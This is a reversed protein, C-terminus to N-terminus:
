VPQFIYSHALLYDKMDLMGLHYLIETMIENGTCTACQNKLITRGPIKAMFDWLGYYEEVNDPQNSFFPKHHLVFSILWSQIKSDLNSRRMGSQEPYGKLDKGCVAPYDTITPLCIDMKTKDIDSIFLLQIASSEQRKRGTKGLLTFVGRDKTDRNDRLPTTTESLPIQAM